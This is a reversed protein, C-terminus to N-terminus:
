NSNSSLCTPVLATNLVRDFTLFQANQLISYYQRILLEILHHIVRAQGDTFRSIIFIIGLKEIM